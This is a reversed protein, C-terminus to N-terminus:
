PVGCHYPPGDVAFYGFLFLQIVSRYCCGSAEQYERSGTELEELAFELRTIETWGRTDVDVVNRGGNYSDIVLNLSELMQSPKASM